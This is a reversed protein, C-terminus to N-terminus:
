RSQQQDKKAEGHHQRPHATRTVDAPSPASLLFAVDQPHGALAAVHVHYTGPLAWKTQVPCGPESRRADWTVRVRVPDGLRLVLDQTPIARRCDVTTWILDNGSTIKMALTRSSLTWTCAPTNLTSIDLVISIDSGAIPKPVSPTIAVEDAPCPGSPMAARTVPDDASDDASDDAANGGHSSRHHKSGGTTVPANTSPSSTPGTPDGTDAVTAAKDPPSSADSSGGLLRAVGVVLLVAIGLVMVRRVWYVRPPLPGRTMGAMDAVSVLADGEGHNGCALWSMEGLPARAPRSPQLPWPLGQGM